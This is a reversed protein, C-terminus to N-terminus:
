KCRGECGRRRGSGVRRGERVVEKRVEQRTLLSGGESAFGSKRVDDRVKGRDRGGEL